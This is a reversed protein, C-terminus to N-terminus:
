LFLVKLKTNMPTMVSIGNFQSKYDIANGLSNSTNGALEGAFITGFSNGSVNATTSAASLLSQALVSGGKGALKYDQETALGTVNDEGLAIGKISYEKGNPLVVYNFYVGIRASDKEQYAKGVLKSNKPILLNGNTILDTYTVATVPIDMNKSSVDRDLYARLYANKPIPLKPASTLSSHQSGQNSVVLLPVNYKRDSIGKQSSKPISNKYSVQDGVKYNKIKQPSTNGGSLIINELEETTVESDGEKTAQKLHKQDISVTHKERKDNHFLFGIFVFVLFGMFYVWSKQYVKEKKTITDKKEEKIEPKSIDEKKPISPKIGTPIKSFITLTLEEKKKM